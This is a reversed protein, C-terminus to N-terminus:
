PKLLTFFDHWTGPKEQRCQFHSSRRVGAGYPWTATPLALTYVMPYLELPSEWCSGPHQKMLYFLHSLFNQESPFFTFHICYTPFETSFISHRDLSAPASCALTYFMFEQQSCNPEVKQCNQIYHANQQVTWPNGGRSLEFHTKISLSTLSSYLQDCIIIVNFKSKPFFLPFIHWIILFHFIWWFFDSLQQVYFHSCLLKLANCIIFITLIFITRQWSQGCFM